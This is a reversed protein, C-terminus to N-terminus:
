ANPTRRDFRAFVRRFYKLKGIFCEVLHREKYAAYDCDRPNVRSQKPPLHHRDCAVTGRHLRHHRRCRLRSRGVSGPDAARGAAPHGAPQRGGRRRHPYVEAPQGACGGARPDNTSFGGRSRRQARASGSGWTERPAGAACAHETTGAGGDRRDDREAPRRRGAVAQFLREWIGLAPGLARVAQLRQELCRLERAVLAM